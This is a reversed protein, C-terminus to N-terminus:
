ENSHYDDRNSPLGHSLLWMVGIVTKADHVHAFIQQDRLADLSYEVVRIDEGEARIGGGPAIKGAFTVEAYYFFIRESSAGPSPYFEFIYQLKDIEYGIEERVERRLTAEPTEGPTVIGAVIETLWGPGNKYTPYRFQEILVVRQTDRNYVIAAASDGREFCLRRITPSMGGAYLEYCFYAEEVQFYDDLLRAERKVIVKKM